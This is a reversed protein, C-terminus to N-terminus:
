QPPSLRGTQLDALIQQVVKAPQYSPLVLEADTVTDGQAEADHDIPALDISNVTATGRQIIGPLLLQKVSDTGPKGTDPVLQKDTDTDTGQKSSGPVLLKDTDAHPKCTDPLPQKDTDTDTGQKSSRPLLQLMVIGSSALKTM